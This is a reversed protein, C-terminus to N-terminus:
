GVGSTNIFLRDAKGRPVVKTDGTAVPVGAAAAAAAISTLVRRLTDVELGEEIILSVSLAIPRAGAVALDNITGHVALRGIDGGPFFLPSVVYSDTTFAVRGSGNASVVAADAFGDLLPGGLTPVVLADILAHSAKGGAGHSLTIHSERLVARSARVERAREMREIQAALSTEIRTTM